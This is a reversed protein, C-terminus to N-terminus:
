RFFGARQLPGLVNYSVALDFRPANSVPYATHFAQTAFASLTFDRLVRRDRICM